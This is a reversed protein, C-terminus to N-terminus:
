KNFFKFFLLFLCFNDEGFFNFNFGSFLLCDVDLWFNFIPIFLGIDNFILFIFSKFFPFFCNVLLTFENSVESKLSWFKSKWVNLLFCEIKFRLEINLVISPVDFESLEKELVCLELLFVCIKESCFTLFYIKFLSFIKNLSFNLFLCWLFFLINPFTISDM